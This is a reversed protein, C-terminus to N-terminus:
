ISRNARIAKALLIVSTLLIGSRVFVQHEPISWNLQTQLLSYAYYGAWYLAIGAVSATLWHFGLRIMKRIELIATFISVLVILFKMLVYADM